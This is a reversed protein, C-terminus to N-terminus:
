QRIIKTLTTLRSVSLLQGSDDYMETNWVQMRRGIKVPTTKAKVIGDMTSSLHNINLEIGVPFANSDEMCLLSAISGLTESLAATAGGHLLGMPQKNHDAVPMTAKLFDDGIETIQIGLHGSLGQEAIRNIAELNFEQKWVKM